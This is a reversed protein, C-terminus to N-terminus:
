AAAGAFSLLTHSWGALTSKGRMSTLLRSRSKWTHPTTVPLTVCNLAYGPFNDPDSGGAM